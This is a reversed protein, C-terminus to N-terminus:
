DCKIKEKKIKNSIYAHKYKEGGMSFPEGFGLITFTYKYKIQTTEVERVGNFINFNEECLVIFNDKSAKTHRRIIACLNKGKYQFNM